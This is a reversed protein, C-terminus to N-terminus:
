FPEKGSLQINKHKFLGYLSDRNLLESLSNQISWQLAQPQLISHLDQCQTGTEVRPSTKPAESQSDPHPESKGTMKYCLRSDRLAAKAFSKFKRLFVQPDLPATHQHCLQSLCHWSWCVGAWTETIIQHAGPSARGQPFHSISLFLARTQPLFTVCPCCRCMSMLKEVPISRHIHWFNFCM